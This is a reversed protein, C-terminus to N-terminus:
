VCSTQCSLAMWKYCRHPVMGVISLHHALFMTADLHQCVWLRDRSLKRFHTDGSTIMDPYPGLINPLPFRFQEASTSDSEVAWFNHIYAQCHCVCISDNETALIQVCAFQRTFGDRCLIIKTHGTSGARFPAPQQM